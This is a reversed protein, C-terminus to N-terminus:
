SATAAPIMAVYPHETFPCLGDESLPSASDVTSQRDMFTDMFQQRWTACVGAM